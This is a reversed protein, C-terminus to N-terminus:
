IHILSLGYSAARGFKNAIPDGTALIAQLVPKNVGTVPGLALDVQACFLSLWADCVAEASEPSLLRRWTGADTFRGAAEFPAADPRTADALTVRENM